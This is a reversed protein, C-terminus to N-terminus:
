ELEPMVSGAIDLLKEDRYKMAKESGILNPFFSTDIDLYFAGDQVWEDGGNPDNGKHRHAITFKARESEMGDSLKTRSYSFLLVSIETYSTTKLVEYKGSKEKLWEYRKKENATANESPKDCQIKEFKVTKLKKLQEYLKSTKAIWKGYPDFSYDSLYMLMWPANGVTHQKFAYGNSIVYNYLMDKAMENTIYIGTSKQLVYIVKDFYEKMNEYLRKEYEGIEEVREEKPCKGYAHSAFHCHQYVYENNEALGDVDWRYHKGYPKQNGEIRRYIGVIQIPNTCGPCIAFAQKQGNIIRVYKEKEQTQEKFSKKSIEYDVKDHQHLRFRDM